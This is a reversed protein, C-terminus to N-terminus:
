QRLALKLACIKWERQKISVVASRGTWRYRLKDVTYFSLLITVM